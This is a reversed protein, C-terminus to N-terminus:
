WDSSAGGGSFGGGGGSWGSGGGGFGGGGFGGGGFFGRGRRGGFRNMLSLIVFIIFILAVPISQKPNKRSSSAPLVDNEALEPHSQYYEHDIIEILRLTGVLVGDAMKQSRFAPVVVETQIRKVLIDPLVGELGQGVEMRMKRENPAILFLLGDDRKADGLKWQDTIALSVQEIPLGQLSATVFIQIQGKGRLNFERLTRDLLQLQQPALLGVEDMVPGTLAPVVFGSALGRQGWLPGSLSLLIMSITFYKLRFL